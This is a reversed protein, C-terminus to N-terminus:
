QELCVKIYGYHNADSRSGVLIKLLSIVKKKQAVNCLPKHESEMWLIARLLRQNNSIYPDKFVSMCCPGRSTVRPQLCCGHSLCVCAVEWVSWQQQPKHEHGSRFFLIHRCLQHCVIVSFDCDSSSRTRTTTTETVTWPTVQTVDKSNTVITVGTVNMGVVVVTEVAVRMVMTLLAVVLRPHAPLLTAAGSVRAVENTWFRQPESSSKSTWRHVLPIAADSRRPLLNLDGETGGTGMRGRPVALASAVILELTSGLKTKKRFGM